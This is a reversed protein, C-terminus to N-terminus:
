YIPPPTRPDGHRVTLSAVTVENTVKQSRGKRVEPKGRVSTSNSVPVDEQVEDLSRLVVTEKDTTLSPFHSVYQTFYM